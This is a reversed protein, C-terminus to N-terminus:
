ICGTDNQPFFYKPCNTLILNLCSPKDSNENGTLESVIYKLIYIVCFSEMMSYPIVAIFNDLIEM